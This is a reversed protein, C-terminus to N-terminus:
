GLLLPHIRNDVIFFIQDFRTDCAKVRAAFYTDYLKINIGGFAHLSLLNQAGSCFVARGHQFVRYATERDCVSAAAACDMTAKVLVGEISASEHIM